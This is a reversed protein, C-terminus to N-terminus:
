HALVAALEEPEVPKVLYDDFGAAIAQQRAGEQGYGTLAVLRVSAGAREARVRRAVEFGDCGPLGIDIIAVDPQTRLVEAVGALGDEAEHVDHGHVLLLAKLMRRGDPNDEIIVVRKPTASPLRDFPALQAAHPAEISPFTVTFTAGRGVGASAAVVRGGHLHALRRVLTLGLGLGGQARDLTREGQTFMDFVRPLLQPAIGVGTDSVELLADGPEARVSVGIRGGAPTYKVANEILNATIQEIRTADGDIWVDRCDVAVDHERLRDAERMARLAELVIKALNIPHRQLVIKGRTVREVDLLDDVLQRLLSVQRSIVERSRAAPTASAGARDLVAMSSAIANLPNRLEHGLMALFEDKGRNAAEAEARAQQERAVAANLAQERERLLKGAEEFARAVRDVEAIGDAAPLPVSGGSALAKASHALAAIPGAIRRGFLIAFAVAIAGVMLSAAAMAITSGRLASEVEEARVGTAITWGWQPSRRHATYLYQGELGYNRYAGETRERSREYLAPAARQGIWRENNLTRAIIIGNQDLLSMTADRPSPYNGLFRLWVPPEIGAVLVHTVLDGRLIPVAIETMFKGGDGERVLPSLAPQHTMLVRNITEVDVPGLENGQPTLKFIQRGSAEVLAVTSWPSQSSLVLRVAAAFADMRNADLDASLALAELVRVSAAIETDLAVTMARSRELYRQHFAARQQSWFLGTLVAAFILVPLLAACVLLVLHSRITM